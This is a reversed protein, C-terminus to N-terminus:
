WINLQMHKLIFIQPNTCIHPNSIDSLIKCLGFVYVCFLVISYPLLCCLIMLHYVLLAILFFICIDFFVTITKWLNYNSTCVLFIVPPAGLLAIATSLKRKNGGSYTGTVRDAYNVLDLKKLAWEIVKFYWIFPKLLYVYFVCCLIKYM